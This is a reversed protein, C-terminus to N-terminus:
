GIIEDMLVRIKQPFLPSFRACVRKKGEAWLLARFVRFDAKLAGILHLNKLGNKSFFIFICIKFLFFLKGM